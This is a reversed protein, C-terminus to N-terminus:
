VTLIKTRRAVRADIQRLMPHHNQERDEERLSETQRFHFIRDRVFDAQSM